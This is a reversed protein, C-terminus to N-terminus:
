HAGGDLAAAGDGSCTDGCLDAWLTTLDIDAVGFVMALLMLIALGIAMVAAASRLDGNQLKGVWLATLKGGEAIVNVLGDILVEDVIRWLGERSVFVTPAIITAEYVEDVFWKNWLLHHLRPFNLAVVDRLKDKGSYYLYALGISGLAVATSVGMLGGEVALNHHMAPRLHVEANAMVPHLWHHLSFHLTEGGTFIAPVSLLGGFISLMGLVVLPVTMTWPSEKPDGGHAHGHGHADAHDDHGHAGHQDGADDAGHHGHGEPVGRHEGWFTMWLIRFMYFATFFAAIVVMVWAVTNGRESAFAWWLIEDKSMFGAMFPFGAIALSAAFFTWHTTPMFKKLGGYFRMDQEHHMAMIVSGSGLFLCAKFFAHTMLHFVGIAYAGAGMAVFMFGLQSVTSYALVKKIDNQVLGISAALLATAAGVMLVISSAFEAHFFLVNMRAIMYVGATVMTAAHILASVPTPGAMADPLWIYLPIQASKGCAGIFLLIAAAEIWHPDFSEPHAALQANIGGAGAPTLTGFVVFLAMMGLAFGFDGVRNVIFAKKGAVANERDEFWFGILLYSALGVGEWGLFLVLLNGGLVLCLMAFIFLNLYAFFRYYSPDGKMYGVSYLHILAGINTVILLMVASLPDLWLVFDIQFAGVHIWNFLTQELARDHADMGALQFFLVWALVAPIAVAALAVTHVLRDSKLKRGTLGNFLAGLAPLAILLVLLSSHEAHM